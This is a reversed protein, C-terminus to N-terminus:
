PAHNEEEGAALARLRVYDVKGSGLRPLKDVAVLEAPLALMSQRTQSFYVRLTQLSAARNETYLIVKEGRKGDTVSVSANNDNGFAREAAREVADLSIMEGSVKAFRKLRSKITVFGDADVTVVDGCDYWEEAPILGQGHLLYGEMVNPGRVHLNGGEEIGAVPELRWEIGPFFRGVSGTRHFLPTNIALVPATETTGYGELIRIGFKEQWVSRVDDQLKEGGALVYRLSFFDYPHAYKAYGMLFTPTGLMLTVRRDYAMEPIIRFHLPSPYLFVEIGELIPLLTGATLGFSHFMPLANLMKDQQTYDIVSGAQNINALINAQRLVVGKPKSESGSTFLIIKATEGGRKGSFYDILGSLKTLLGMTARLDELYLIRFEAAMQDIYEALGAKEVFVRSTLITKLGATHGCDLNNRAGASLNFIAPTIDAYLLAFFTVVHGISNPLLIGVQNEGALVTRLRGALVYSSRIARRYTITGNVDEAMVKGMGYFAGAALLRGFLSSGATQQQRTAFLAEQLVALLRDSIERKQQRFNKNGEAAIRLPTAAYMTVRPFWASKVKDTIRSLKSYKLGSFIVPYLTAGTKLAVFGVGSYVKMLGGTITIRGEPFLVVPRGEKVVAVIRKLSYPNLPDVTVHDFWRLVFSIKAAIATNIVFCAGGPLFAWLFVADLFSQHNPLVIAPGGFRLNEWGILRTGFLRRLLFRVVGKM